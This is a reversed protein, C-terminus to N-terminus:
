FSTMLRLSYDREPGVADGSFLEGFDIVKLRNNLNDGDAQLRIKMCEASRVDLGASVSLEM